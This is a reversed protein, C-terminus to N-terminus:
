FNDPLVSCPSCDTGHNYSGLGRRLHAEAPAWDQWVSPLTGTGVHLGPDDPVPRWAREPHEWARKETRRGQGARGVAAAAGGICRGDTGFRRWRAAHFRGPAARDVPSPSGLERLALGRREGM